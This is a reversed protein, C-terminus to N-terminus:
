GSLVESHLELVVVYEVGLSDVYRGLAIPEDIYLLRMSGPLLLVGSRVGSQTLRHWYRQDDRTVRAESVWIASTSAILQDFYRRYEPPANDDLPHIGALPWQVENLPDAIERVHIVAADNPSYFLKTNSAAVLAFPGDEMTRLRFATPDDMNQWWRNPLRLLAQTSGGELGGIVIALTDRDPRGEYMTTAPLGTSIGLLLKGGRAPHIWEPQRGRPGLGNVTFSRAFTGAGDFVSFRSLDTDYTLVSDGDILSVSTLRIFEGPGRGRTGFSRIFSGRTDYMRVDPGGGNALVVQGDHLYASRVHYLVNVSDGDSAGITSITDARLGEVNAPVGPENDVSGCGAVGFVLLACSFRAM